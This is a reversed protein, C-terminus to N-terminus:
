VARCDLAKAYQEDALAVSGNREYADALLGIIQASQPAQNFAARLDEIADNLKGNAMRITARLTLAEVNKEDDTLVAEVLKTAEANDNKSMMM